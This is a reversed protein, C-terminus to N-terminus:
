ISRVRIKLKIHINECNFLNKFNKQIISYQSGKVTVFSNVHTLKSSTMCKFLYGGLFYKKLSLSIMLM